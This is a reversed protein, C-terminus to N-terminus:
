EINQIIKSYVNNYLFNKAHDPNSIEKSRSVMIEKAKNQCLEAEDKNDIVYYTKAMIWWELYPNKSEPIEELNKRLSSITNENINELKTEVLLSALEPLINEEVINLKRSLKKVKEIFKQAKKLKGKLIFVISLTQMAKMVFVRQEAMQFYDISEDYEEIAESYDEKHLQILGSLMHYKGLMFPQNFEELIPHAEELYYEAEQFLGLEVCNEALITLVRGEANRMKLSRFKGLAKQAHKIAQTYDGFSHYVNSMGADNIAIAKDEELDEKITLSRRLYELATEPETLTYCAALNNLTKAEAYRDALKIQLKLSKEYYRIAKPYQGLDKFVIGLCNFVSAIGQKNDHDEAINLAVELGEEAEVYYGMRHNVMALHAYADSFDSDLEIAKQFLDKMEKLDDKSQQIDYLYKAKTYCELAEPNESIKSEFSKSLQSSIEVGFLNATYKVIEGRIQKINVITTKWKKNWVIDGSETDLIEISLNIDNGSKLLHGSLITDVQLDRAVDHKSLGTDKHSIVDSFSATRISGIKQYDSILEETLNYCFFESEADGLNQFYLIGISKVEKVAYENIDVFNIGREIQIKRLQQDTESKWDQQDIYVKYIPEPNSINKLKIYGMERTFIKDSKVTRIVADSIAIGGPTAIPEIRACMNVDHGFLDKDKEIAEGEHIGVRILVKDEERSIENRKRLQTQIEIGANVTDISSKFECFYADGITKIIRGGNEVLIPEVIKNHQDLLKLAHTENKNIMRSYGVIDTFMISINRKETSM